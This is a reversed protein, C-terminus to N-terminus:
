ARLHCHIDVKLKGQRLNCQPLKLEPSWKHWTPLYLAALCWVCCVCIASFSSVFNCFVPLFSLPIHPPFDRNSTNASVPNRKAIESLGDTEQVKSQLWYFRFETQQHYFLCQLCFVGSGILHAVHCLLVDTGWVTSSICNSLCEQIAPPNSALRVPCDYVPHGRWCMVDLIYYTRDVESYICDLITYDSDCLYTHIPVFSILVFAAEHHCTCEYKTVRRSRNTFCKGFRWLLLPCSICHARRGKGVASNHKNGGPLLSPFRNVCYGSKTYAATSGKPLSLEFPVCYMLLLCSVVIYLFSWQMGGWPKM